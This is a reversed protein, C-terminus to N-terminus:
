EVINMSEYFRRQFEKMEDITYVKGIEEGYYYTRNEVPIILIEGTSIKVIAVLTGDISIPAEAFLINEINQEESIHNYIIDLIEDNSLYIPENKTSYSISETKLKKTKESRGVSLIGNQNEANGMPIKWSIYRDDDRLPIGKEIKDFLERDYIYIKKVDDLNYRSLTKDEKKPLNNKYSILERKAVRAKYEEEEEKSIMEDAKNESTLKIRNGELKSLFEDLENLEDSPKNIKYETNKSKMEEAYTYYTAIGGFLLTATSFLAISKKINM